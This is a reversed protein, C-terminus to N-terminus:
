DASPAASMAFYLKLLFPSEHSCWWQSYRVPLSRRLKELFLQSSLIWESKAGRFPQKSQGSTENGGSRPVEELILMQDQQFAWQRVLRTIARHHSCQSLHKRQMGVYSVLAVAVESFHRGSPGDQDPLKESRQAAHVDFKNPERFQSRRVALQSPRESM